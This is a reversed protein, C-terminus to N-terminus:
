GSRLMGKVVGADVMLWGMWGDIVLGQVVTRETTTVEVGVHLAGGLGLLDM